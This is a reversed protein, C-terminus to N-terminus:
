VGGTLMQGLNTPVPNTPVQPTIPPIGFGQQVPTAESGPMGEPPLGFNAFHQAAKELGEPTQIIELLQNMDM